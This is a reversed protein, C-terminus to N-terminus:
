FPFTGGLDASIRRAAKLLHPLMRAIDEPTFRERPGSLSLAGVIRDRGSFVPVAIGACLKDREGLSVAFGSARIGDTEEGQESPTGFAMLVKGAAGRNIPLRDGPRVRDLTSHNSNLRFLCLREETTQRIHFSPSETGAAVLVELAPIIHYRLPNARDYALGLQMVAPGLTYKSQEVRVVYGADQLSELIRLITSKYFGTTLSIESLKRPMQSNELAAIISLARDVAAVGRPTKESDELAM